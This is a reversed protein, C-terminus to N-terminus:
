EKINGLRKDAFDRLSCEVADDTTVCGQQRRRWSSSHRHGPEVM